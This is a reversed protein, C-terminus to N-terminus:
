HYFFPFLKKINELAEKLNAVRILRPDSCQNWPYDYILVPIKYELIKLAFELCDEIFLDFHYNNKKGTIYKDGDGENMFLLADYKFKHKELWRATMQRMHKEPRSTVIIISFFKSLEELFIEAYDLPKIKDWLNNRTLEKFVELVEEQSVGYCKEFEYHVIDKLALNRNFRKNLYPIFLEISDAIVSDIDIGITLKKM